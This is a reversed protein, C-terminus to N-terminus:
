KSTTDKKIIGIGSSLKTSFNKKIDFGLEESALEILKSLFDIEIQKQGVIRELEANRDKFYKTRQEESEMQVVLKSSQKLYQSYKYVWKYIASRSIGYDRGLETITIKKGELEKVKLRKFQESFVRQNRIELKPQKRAM